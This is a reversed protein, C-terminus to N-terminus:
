SLKALTSDLIIEKRMKLIKKLFVKQLDSALEVEDILLNIQDLNIKPVIRKIAKNCDEYELSTIIKFYNGRKGNFLIASTPVDYVRANMEAKSSIIKKIFDDDIQPFLASGCDFIPAIKMEDKEQNYLFGWNGNHRDWNGIFADVVFMNWFHDRLKNPDVANQEEITDLIDKIETGYGNSASDIIQNKVSAFDIFSTNSSTFDKCAVVNRVKGRYKYIGLLTDQANIGLMNFIHCGLYESLCSNTYSLNPNKLAHMPLKLMYVNNNYVISLKSGNAGGYGKKRVPLNTFDIM